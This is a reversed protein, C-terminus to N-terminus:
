PERLFCRLHLFCSNNQKIWLQTVMRTDNLLITWKMYFYVHCDHLTFNLTNQPKCFYTLLYLFMKISFIITVQYYFFYQLIQTSCKSNTCLAYLKPNQYFNHKLYNNSTIQILLRLYWPFLIMSTIRITSHDVSHAKYWVLRDFTKRLWRIM